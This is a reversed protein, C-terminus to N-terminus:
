KKFIVFNKKRKRVSKTIFDDGSEQSHQTTHPILTLMAAVQHNASTTHNTNVLHCRKQQVFDVFDLPKFKFHPAFLVLCDM